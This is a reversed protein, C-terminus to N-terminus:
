ASGFCRREAMSARRVLELISRLQRSRLSALLRAAGVALPPALVRHHVALRHQHELATPVSM